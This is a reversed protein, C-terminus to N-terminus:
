GSKHLRQCHCPLHAVVCTGYYLAIVKNLSNHSELSLIIIEFSTHLVFVPETNLGYVCKCTIDDVHSLKARSSVSIQKSVVYVAM